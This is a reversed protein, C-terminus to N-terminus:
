AFVVGHEYAAVAASQRAARDIRATRANRVREMRDTEAVWFSADSATFPAFYHPYSALIGRGFNRRTKIFDTSNFLTTM